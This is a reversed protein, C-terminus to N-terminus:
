PISSPGWVLRYATTGANAVNFTLAYRGDVPDLSAQWFDNGLVSQDVVSWVAEDIARKELRWGDHRNLGRITVPVLGRGGTLIFAAATPGAGAEIEPPHLRRVTGVTAVVDIDGGSAQELMMGTSRFATPLLSRLYTSSGYYKAQVAPPVLYEITAHVTSGAPIFRTRGQCPAGCWPSGAENPLGLEFAMQSFRNNTRRLNFSPVRLVTGGINADFERVVFGVDALEEALTDGLTPDAAYLMAWPAKGTIAIGRSAEDPYGTTRHDPVVGDFLVGAANGYAYRTFRNDSYKDAAMQFFALRSYSVDSLFTYDLQFRVRVIDDTRGLQSRIEARIRGDSSVGAYLVDTLNPGNSAHLTRVRSLRRLIGPESDTAYRLFDAGGVNGTWWWQRGAEVLFPRVDDVMARGASEDPDYTVSEGFAGLASEDWHGTATDNWGILSLQAHSAAYSSGWRSSTVTLECEHVGEDTLQPQTFLRYWFKGPVHWNKSIQLPLGFPEGSADRLLFAGGTIYWSLGGSGSLALPVSMTGRGGRDIRLRHRGYWNHHSEDTAYTPGAPAGAAQLPRLPVDFAGLTPDWVASDTLVPAGFRSLLTYGVQVTGAPDVYMAQEDDNVSQAPVALLSVELAQSAELNAGRSAVIEGGNWSLQTTTGAKDYVVFLWGAGNANCLRLARGESLWTARDLGSLFPGALVIRATATQASSWSSSKVTHTFVVHRPMSAIVFGGSYSADASYNVTPIEVRNMFRGGEILRARGITNGSGGLFQTATVSKEGAGAELRLSAAPLADVLAASQQAAAEADAPGPLPGFRGLDGTEENFSLGYYGTLFHMVRSVTPWTENPRHNGPWHWFAYDRADLKPIRGHLGCRPDVENPLLEYRDTSENCAGVVTCMDTSPATPPSGAVCGATPDCREVGNCFLGDDCRADDPVHVVSQRWSDVGDETCAVHDDVGTSPVCVSLGPFRSEVCSVPGVVGDGGGTSCRGQGDCTGREECLSGRPAHTWGAGSAAVVCRQCLTTPSFEGDRYTVGDISCRDAVCTGAVCRRSACDVDGQCVAGDSCTIGTGDGCSLGPGTARRACRDDTCVASECDSALRCVSRYGCPPANAGGCDVGTEGGNRVGDFATPAACVALICRLSACDSAARCRSPETWGVARCVGSVCNASRCDASVFCGGGNACGTGGGGCDIDTETGNRVRDRANPAVACGGASTRTAGLCKGSACDSHVFCGETASCLKAPACRGGCDIGSEGGNKVGDDCSPWSCRGDSDIGGSACDGPLGSVGVMVGSACRGCRSSGGCDVGAELGDRVGDSCTPSACVGAVCALGAACDGEVRCGRTRACRKASAGGCDVDTETGDLLRNASTIASDATTLEVACRGDSCIGSACVKSVVSDVSCAEGIAGLCRGSVCTGSACDTGLVCREGIAFPQDPAAQCRRPTGSCRGSICEAAVSCVDGTSKTREMCSGAACAFGSACESESRCAGARRTSPDTCLGFTATTPDRACILGRECDSTAKCSIGAGCRTACRAGGCNLGTEGTDVRTDAPACSLPQCRGGAVSLGCSGSICDADVECATGDRGKPRCACSVVACEADTLGGSAPRCVGSACDAATTCRAKDRCPACSGGCDTFSEAGDLVGNFCSAAPANAFTPLFALDGAALVTNSAKCSAMVRRTGGSAECQYTAQSAVADAPPAAYVEVVTGPTSWLRWWYVRGDALPTVPAAVQLAVAVTGVTEAMALASMEGRALLTGAGPLASDARLEVLLRGATLAARRVRLAVFAPYGEGRMRFRTAVETRTGASTDNSLTALLAGSTGWACAGAGWPCDANTLATARADFSEMEVPQSANPERDVGCGSLVILAVGLLLRCCPDSPFSGGDSAAETEVDAM